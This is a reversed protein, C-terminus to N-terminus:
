APTYKLHFHRTMDKVTQLELGTIFDHFPKPNKTNELAQYYDMRRIPPISVPFYRDQYLLTNMILRSTRGNGDYFPHINVLRRHAEAAFHVPHYDKRGTNLWNAFKEMEEPIKLPDTLVKNSGRIFVPDKRYEGPTAIATIDKAFLFHCHKIQEETVQRNSVLTLMFDYARAHGTAEYLERLPHGGVTIGDNLILNTEQLTLTNGEIANSSYTTELRFFENIQRLNAGEFPRIANITKMRDDLEELDTM